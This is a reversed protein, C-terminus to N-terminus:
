IKELLDKLIICYIETNADAAIVGLRHTTSHYRRQAVHVDGLTYSTSLINSPIEIDWCILIDIVSPDKETKGNIEQLFGGLNQKFEVCLESSNDRRFNAVDYYKRGKSHETQFIVPAIGLPDEDSSNSKKVEIKYSLASDYTAIGSFFETRYGKIINAQLLHYFLAIVEQESTPIKNLSSFKKIKGLLEKEEETYNEKQEKAKQLAALFDDSDIDGGTVKGTDLHKLVFQGFQSSDNIITTGFLEIVKDGILNAFHKSIGKRGSDLQESMSIDADVIIYYRKLYGGRNFWDDIRIGTPMGNISLYVGYSLQYDSNKPINLQSEINSLRTQSVACLAVDFKVKKQTGIELGTSPHFLARFDRQFAADSLSKCYDEFNFALVKVEDHEIPHFFKYLVNENIEEGKIIVKLSVDIPVIPPKGFLSKTNGIATRTRLIYKFKEVDKKNQVFNFADDLSAVAPFIDGYNESLIVKVYTGSLDNIGNETITVKEFNSGKPFDM